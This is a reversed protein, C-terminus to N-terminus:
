RAGVTMRICPTRDFRILITSRARKRVIAGRDFLGASKRDERRYREVLNRSGTMDVKMTIGALLVFLPHECKEPAIQM